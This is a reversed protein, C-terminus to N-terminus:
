PYPRVVGKVGVDKRIREQAKEAVARDPYPGVRLRVAKGGALQIQETLVPQGGARLKRELRTANAANSFTGVQVVWGGAAQKAEAPPAPRRAAKAEAPAAPPAAQKVAKTHLVPPPENLPSPAPPAKPAASPAAGPELPVVRTVAVKNGVAPEEEEAQLSLPARHGLIMPIFIVALTVVVIAGIIRHKPDFDQGSDRQTM